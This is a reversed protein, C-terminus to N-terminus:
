DKMKVSIKGEQTKTTGAHPLVPQNGVAKKASLSLPPAKLRASQSEKFIRTVRWKREEREIGLYHPAGGNNEGSTRLEVISDVSNAKLVTAVTLPSRAKREECVGCKKQESNVWSLAEGSSLKQAIKFEGKALSQAFEIAVDKATRTRDDISVVRPTLSEGPVNYNCAARGAGWMILTSLSIVGLMILTQKSPADIKAEDLESSQVKASERM